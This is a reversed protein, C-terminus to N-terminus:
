AIRTWGREREFSTESSIACVTGVYPDHPESSALVLGHWTGDRLETLIAVFSPADPWARAVHEWIQGVRLDGTVASM